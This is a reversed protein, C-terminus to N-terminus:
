IPLRTFFQRRQRDVESEGTYPKESISDDVILIGIESEMKQVRVKAQRINRFMIATTKGFASM